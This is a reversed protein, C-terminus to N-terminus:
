IGFFTSSLIVVWYAALGIYLVFRADIFSFFKSNKILKFINLNKNLNELM